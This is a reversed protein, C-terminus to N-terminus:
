VLVQKTTPTPTPAGLFWRPEPIAPADCIASPEDRTASSDAGADAINKSVASGSKYKTAGLPNEQGAQETDLAICATCCRCFARRLRALPSNVAIRPGHQVQHKWAALTTQNIPAAVVLREVVCFRPVSGRDRARVALRGTPPVRDAEREVAPGTHHVVTRSAILESPLVRAAPLLPHGISRRPQRRLRDM